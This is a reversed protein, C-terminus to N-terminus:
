RHDDNLRILEAVLAGIAASGKTSPHIRDLAHYSLDGHPVLDSIPLFFVGSDRSAMRALRAEFEDGDDACSEIPSARGPTRLYGVYVVKAGSQRLRTVLAPIEGAMGDGAIMRSLKRECSQCGCGLWLDNGGGNLIVWEWEGPVFQRSIHLGLSGSIPLNM